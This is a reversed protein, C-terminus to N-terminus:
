CATSVAGKSLEAIELMKFNRRDHMRKGGEIITGDERERGGSWLESM